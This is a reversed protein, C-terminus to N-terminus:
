GLAAWKTAFVSNVQLDDRRIERARVQLPGQQRHRHPLVDRVQLQRVARLPLRPVRVRLKVGPEARLVPVGGRGRGGAAAAVVRGRPADQSSGPSWSWLSSNNITKEASKRCYHTRPSWRRQPPAAAVNQLYETCTARDGIWLESHPCRYSLLLAGWTSIM